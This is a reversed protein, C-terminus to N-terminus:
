REVFPVIEKLLFSLVDEDTLSAIPTRDRLVRVSTVMRRGRGRSTHAVVEPPDATDDLALELYDDPSRESALRVSGAPTFVKFLHGEGVLAAAFQHFTPVAHQELFLEYDQAAQTGRARRGSARLRAEEIAGRVRRRIDSVEM